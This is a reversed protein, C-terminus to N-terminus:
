EAPKSNNLGGKITRLTPSNKNGKANKKIQATAAEDAKQIEARRAEAQAKVEPSNPDQGSECGSILAVSLVLGLSMLLFAPKSAKGLHHCM